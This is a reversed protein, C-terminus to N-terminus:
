QIAALENKLFDINRIDIPDTGNLEALHLSVWDGFHILYFFEELLNQGNAPLELVRSTKSAFIGKCIEMRIRSRPHDASSQLVVVTLKDSGTEWGVLENHNMEPFVHHWCLMKSNENIQQRWRIAVGELRQESYIVPTTGNVTKAMELADAEITEQNSSLLNFAGELAASIDGGILGFGRLLYLLQCASYAFMSRPPNGGPIVIHPLNHAECTAKVEGGSTVAAMMAGRGMAVQMAAVTEETNGSYSSIIVLTHQDVYAPLAYDNNVLIPVACQDSVYQSIVKGGIGSGGLGSIVINRVERALAPATFASGITIAEQIHSPFSAILNRM